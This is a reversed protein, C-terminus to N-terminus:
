FYGYSTNKTNWFYLRGSKNTVKGVKKKTVIYVYYTKKADFKKKNFKSVTRSATNKGVSAVKKYGSKKKTSVYIDYGTAGTVKTWNVKLKGSSVKASKIRPQTFCHIESWKSYHKKGGFNTFARLRVRYTQANSVKKSQSYGSAYGSLTTKAIRKNKGNYVEFEYGSVSDLENWKVDFSLLFYWWREQKLGTIKDPLTVVEDLTLYWGEEGKTSIPTVKVEYGTASKLGGITCSTATTTSVVRYNASSYDRIEVLYKAADKPGTWSVTVSTKAAGSQKLNSVEEWYYAQVKVAGKDLLLGIGFFLVIVLLARLINKRKM